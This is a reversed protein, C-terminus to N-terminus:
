SYPSVTFLAYRLRKQGSTLAMCLSLNETAAVPAAVGCATELPEDLRSAEVMSKPLWVWGKEGGGSGLGVLGYMRSM